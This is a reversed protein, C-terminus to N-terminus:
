LDIKKGPFLAGAHAAYFPYRWDIANMGVLSLPNLHGPFEGLTVGHGGGGVEGRRGATRQGEVIRALNQRPNPLQSSPM